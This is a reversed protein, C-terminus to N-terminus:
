QHGKKRINMKMALEVDRYILYKPFDNFWSSYGLECFIGSRFKGGSIM